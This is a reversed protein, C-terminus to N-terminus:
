VPYDLLQRQLVLTRGTVDGMEGLEFDRLRLGGAKFGAVDYFESQVHIPVREDWLARNVSRYDEEIV